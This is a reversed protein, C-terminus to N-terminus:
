KTWVKVVFDFTVNLSSLNKLKESNLLSTTYLYPTMSFLEQIDENNKINTTYSINESQSLKFRKFSDNKTKLQTKEGYLINKLEILHKEGPTVEILLGDKKLIRLFEHEPKPAFINFICDASNDKLPIDFISSVLYIGNKDVQAAKKIADKSIDIGIHPAKSSKLYYAPGCGADLILHEKTNKSEITQFIKEVLTDFYGKELFNFRSDIMKKNDGPSKTNKKNAPLLNIYGEKSIDFCHGNPCKLTKENKILEQKCIPCLLYKMVTLLIPEKNDM